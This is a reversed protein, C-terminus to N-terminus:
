SESDISYTDVYMYVYGCADLNLISPRRTKVSAKEFCSESYFSSKVVESDISYTDMCM